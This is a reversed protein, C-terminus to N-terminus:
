ADSRRCLHRSLYLDDDLSRGLLWFRRTPRAPHVSRRRVSGRRHQDLHDMCPASQQCSCCSCLGALGVISMFSSYDRVYFVVMLVSVALMSEVPNHRRRILAASAAAILLVALLDPQRADTKDSRALLDILELVFLIAAFGLDLLAPRDRAWQQTRNAFRILNDATNVDLGYKRHEAPSVAMQHVANRWLSSDRRPVRGIHASHIGLNEDHTEAM